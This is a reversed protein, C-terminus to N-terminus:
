STLFVNETTVCFGKPHFSVDPRISYRPDYRSDMPERDADPKRGPGRDDWSQVHVNLALAATTTVPFAIM